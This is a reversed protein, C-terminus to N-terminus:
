RYLRRSAVGKVMGNVPHGRPCTFSSMNGCAVNVRSTPAHSHWGSKFFSRGARLLDRRHDDRQEREAGSVDPWCKKTSPSRASPGAKSMLRAEPTFVNSDPVAKTRPESARSLM